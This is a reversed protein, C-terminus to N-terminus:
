LLHERLAKAIAGSRNNLHLKAYINRVHGDITHPSLSLRAAITVKTEGDM